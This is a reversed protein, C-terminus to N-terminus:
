RKRAEKLFVLSDAPAVCLIEGIAAVKANFAANDAYDYKEKIEDLIDESLTREVTARVKAFFGWAKLPIWIAGRRRWVESGLMYEAINEAPGVVYTTKDPNGPNPERNDIEERYEMFLRRLDPDGASYGVFVFADCEVLASRLLSKVPDFRRNFLDRETVQCEHALTGHLHIIPIRKGEREVERVRHYQDITVQAGKKDFAAELLEDFNTTFVRKLRPQADWFCLSLFTDHPETPGKSAKFLVDSIRALLDQRGLGSMAEVAQAIAELSYKTAISSLQEATPNVNTSSFFQELLRRSLSEGSPINSRVSM